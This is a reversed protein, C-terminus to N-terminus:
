LSDSTPLCSSALRKDRKALKATAQTSPSSWNESAQNGRQLFSLAPRWRSLRKGSGKRWLGLEGLLEASPYESDSHRLHVTTGGCPSRETVCGKPRKQGSPLPLCRPSAWFRASSCIWAAWTLAWGFSPAAGERVLTKRRFMKALANFFFTFIVKFSINM